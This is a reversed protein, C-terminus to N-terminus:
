ERGGISGSFRNPPLDAGSEGRRTRDALEPEPWRIKEFAYVSEASNRTRKRGVLAVIKGAALLNHDVENADPPM